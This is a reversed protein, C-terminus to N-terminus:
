EGCTIELHPRESQEKSHFGRFQIFADSSSDLKSENEVQLRFYAVGGKGAALQARIAETVDLRLEKGMKPITNTAQSSVLEGDFASLLRGGMSIHTLVSDKLSQHYVQLALTGIQNNPDVM